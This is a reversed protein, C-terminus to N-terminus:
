AAFGKDTVTINIKLNLCLKVARLSSYQMNKAQFIRWIELTAGEFVRPQEKDGLALKVITLVRGEGGGRMAAIGEGGM